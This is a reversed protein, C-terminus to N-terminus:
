REAADLVIFGADTLATRARNVTDAQVLVYDTDFTSLAFVSVQAAALATSIQALLGVVAFDIPGDVQLCSWNASVRMNAAAPLLQSARALIDTCVISLEDDTRSIFAMPATMLAEAVLADSPLRYIGFRESRLTINPLTM